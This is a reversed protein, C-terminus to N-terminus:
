PLEVQVASRPRAICALAFSQRREEASLCNPEEMVVNGEVIRVRCTGCGGVTCSSRIPLRTRAAAILLSEGPAVTVSDRELGRVLTAEYTSDFPPPTAGRDDHRVFWEERIATPAVGRQLLAERASRMMPVPGCLFYTVKSPASTWLPGRSLRTHLTRADLRGIGGCWGPPPEELLYDVAFRDPHERALADLRDRFLIDERRRNGYVLVIRTAPETRLLTDAISMLPTIGSGGGILVLKRGGEPAPGPVFRGAPGYATLEDGAALTEHLFTSVQGGPVRKITVHAAAEPVAPSALSYSRRVPGCGPDVQFTLFQGPLFTLPEASPASLYVSVADPTEQVIREV